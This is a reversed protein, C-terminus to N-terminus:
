LLCSLREGFLALRACHRCAELTSAWGKVICTQMSAEDETPGIHFRLARTLLMRASRGARTGFCLVAAPPRPSGNRLPQPYRGATQPAVTSRSFATFFPRLLWQLWPGATSSCVALAAVRSRILVHVFVGVGSSSVCSAVFVCQQRNVRTGRPLLSRCSKQLARCAFTCTSGAQMTRQEHTQRNGGPLMPVVPVEAKLRQVEGSGHRLTWGCTTTDLFLSTSSWARCVSADALVGLAPEAGSVLLHLIHLRELVSETQNDPVPLDMPSDKVGFLNDCRDQSGLM